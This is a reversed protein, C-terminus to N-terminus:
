QQPPTNDDENDETQTNEPLEGSLKAKLSKLADSGETSSEELVSDIEEDLSKNENALESYSESLAEQEEVKTKMRELMSVTGSSDIGALQKNVNKTAASVKSRAKLMKSENEWKSINNKLSKISSELKQVQGDYKQYNVMSQKYNNLSQQKKELASSALRDAETQDLAGSQARKVLKIAKNEYSKAQEKYSSAENKTRIALAKVEALAEISKELKEKLERIGQDTMKTPDEIKDIKSHAEAKGIRFLRKFIGM